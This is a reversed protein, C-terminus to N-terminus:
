VVLDPIPTTTLIEVKQMVSLWVQQDSTKECLNFSDGIRAAFGV